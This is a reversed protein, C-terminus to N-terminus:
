CLARHKDCEGKSSILLPPAICWNSEGVRMNLVQTGGGKSATCALSINRGSRLEDFVWGRGRPWREGVRRSHVAAARKSGGRGHVGSQHRLRCQVRGQATQTVEDGARVAGRLACQTPRLPCAAPSRSRRCGHPLEDGGASVGVDTNSGRM